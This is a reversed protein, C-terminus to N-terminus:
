QVAFAYYVQALVVGDENVVQWYTNYVGASTPAVFDLTVSGTDNRAMAPLYRLTYESGGSTQAKLGKLYRFQINAPLDRLGTNKFTFTVDFERGAPLVIGDKLSQEVLKVSDTYTTATPKASVGGSGGTVPVRTPASTAPVVAVVPLATTTTDMAALTPVPTPPLPTATAPEATPTASPNLAAAYTIKAVVTQAAETRVTDLNQTPATEPAPGTATCAAMVLVATVLILKKFLKM